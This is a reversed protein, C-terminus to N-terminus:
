KKFSKAYKLMNDVQLKSPKESSDVMYMNFITTRLDKTKLKSSFFVNASDHCKKCRDNYETKSDLLLIFLCLVNIM